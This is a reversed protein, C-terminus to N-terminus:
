THTLFSPYDFKADPYMESVFEQCFALLGKVHYMGVMLKQVQNVLLAVKM